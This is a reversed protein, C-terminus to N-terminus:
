QKSVDIVDHEGKREGDVQVPEEVTVMTSEIVRLQEFLLTITSPDFESGSQETAELQVLRGRLHLVKTRVRSVLGPLLTGARKVIDQLEHIKSVICAYLDDVGSDKLFDLDLPLERTV